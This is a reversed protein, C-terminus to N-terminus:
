LAVSSTILLGIGWLSVAAFVGAVVDDAMVGLGGSIRRDLWGIPWPKAIDFLRFLVFGLLYHLWDVPVVALAIWVGVVEDIVIESADHGGTTRDYQGAAWIGVPFLAAAAALLWWGSGAATAIGWAFPMAALTGWTGPAPKLLGSGFWTALLAHPKM